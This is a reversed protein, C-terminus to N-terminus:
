DPDLYPHYGKALGQNNQIDWFGFTIITKNYMSRFFPLWLKAERTLALLVFCTFKVHNGMVKVQNNYLRCFHRWLHQNWFNVTRKRGILFFVSIKVYLILFLEMTKFHCKTDFLKSDLEKFDLKLGENMIVSNYALHTDIWPQNITLQDLIYISRRDHIRKTCIVETFTM